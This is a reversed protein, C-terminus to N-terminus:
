DGDTKLDYPEFLLVFTPKVSKPCHKVGKTVVLMEGESLIVDPMDEFQIALEGSLVYFLEDFDSHKHWHFEGDVFCMRVVQDNVRAVEVPSCHKGSIQNMKEKIVIKSIM